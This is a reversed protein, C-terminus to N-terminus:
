KRRSITLQLFRKTIKTVRGLESLRHGVIWLIGEQDCILPIKDREAREIKEDIFYEKLKKSGKMGLPKFKDGPIRARVLLPFHIADADFVASCDAIKEPYADFLRAKVTINFFFNRTEGGLIIEASEVISETQSENKNLGFVLTNYSVKMMIESPLIFVAGIQGRSALEIMKEVHQFTIGNLNGQQKLMIKRLLERRLAPHLQLFEKKRVISGERSHRVIDEYCKQACERIYDHEDGVLEATKCLAETISPNFDARIQPLLSLRIRNRTYCEEFNTQDIRPSLANRECYMEIERRTVSLLPRIIDRNVPRIGAIGASGAGRFLHLLVTEAQDDKHHGTAIKAGGLTKAVKRLFEYRVIRAAEECSLGYQKAYANVNTQQLYCEIGKALCFEKVFNADHVAAQGRLMHDLHAVVLTLKYEAKLQLLIDVLALSDAGGSCAIVINDGYALVSNKECYAKIKELM